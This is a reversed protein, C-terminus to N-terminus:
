RRSQEDGGLSHSFSGLANPAEGIVQQLPQLLLSLLLIKGILM